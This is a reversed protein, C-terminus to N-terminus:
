VLGFRPGAARCVDSLSRDAAEAGRALAFVAAIEAPRKLLPWAIRWPRTRGAEDVAGSVARPVAHHAEDVIARVAIFPLGHRKAVEAVAGSEMDVALARSHEALRRKHDPSAAVQQVSVFRGVRLGSQRDLVGALHQRWVPDTTHRRGTETEVEDAIVVTGRRLSPCIAGAYGFSMLGSVGNAILREAARAAATQGMGSVAVHPILGVWRRTVKRLIAREAEVAVVIGIPRLGSLRAEAHSDRPM